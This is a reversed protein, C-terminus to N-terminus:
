EKLLLHYSSLNFCIHLTRMFPPGSLTIECQHNAPFPLSLCASLFAPSSLPLVLAFTHATHIFLQACSSAHIVCQTVTFVLIHAAMHQNSGVSTPSSSQLIFSAFTVLFGWGCEHFTDIGSSPMYLYHGQFFGCVAKCSHTLLDVFLQFSLPHVLILYTLSCDFM